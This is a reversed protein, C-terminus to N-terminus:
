GTTKSRMGLLNEQYAAIFNIALEEKSSGTISVNVEAKGSGTAAQQGPTKINVEEGSRGKILYNENNFGPPIIGSLGNAAKPVGARLLPPQTLPTDGGAGAFSGKAGAALNNISNLSSKSADKFANEMEDAAAISDEAITTMAIATGEELDIMDRSVSDIAHEMSDAMTKSADATAMEVGEISSQLEGQAASAKAAAADGVDGFDTLEEMNGGLQVFIKELIDAIKEMPDAMEDFVGSAEAQEIMKQTNADLELGYDSAAQKLQLLTPGILTLAQNQSFGADILDDFKSKASTGFADIQDQSLEGLAATAEMVANLGEVSDVLEQNGKVLERFQRLAEFTKDGEIGLAEQSAILKDFSDDMQTLAETISLGSKLMNAFTGLAITTQANFEEANKAPVALFKELDPITDRIPEFWQSTSKAIEEAAAAAEDRLEQFGDKGAEMADAISMDEALEELLATLKQIEEEGTIGFERLAETALEIGGTLGDKGGFLKGLTAVGATIAGLVNGSAVNQVVAGMGEFAVAMKDPVISLGSLVKLGGSIAGVYDKAIIDSLVDKMGDFAVALEQPIFSLRALSDLARNYSEQKEQMEKLKRAAGSAASEKEKLMATGEILATNFNELGPVLDIEEQINRNVVDQIAPMKSFIDETEELNEKRDEELKNVIGYVKKAEDLSVNLDKQLKEIKSLEPNQAKLIANASKLSVGYREMIKQAETLEQTNEKTIAAGDKQIGITKLYEANFSEFHKAVEEGYEGAKIDAWIANTEAFVQNSDGASESLLKLAEDLMSTDTSLGDISFRFENLRLSSEIVTDVLSKTSETIREENKVIQDALGIARLPGFAFTVAEGIGQFGAVLTDKNEKMWQTLNQLAPLLAEVFAKGFEVQLDQVTNQLIRSQNAFSGQTKIADGIALGSQQYAIKLSTVAKAQLLTMGQTNQLEKVMGKFEKTDQRVVIGLLKAPETEGVLLKTLAASARAAGGQINGFSATDAALKQTQLSLDFMAKKSFGFGALLDGTAALMREAELTSFLYNDTLEKVAAGTEDTMGSFVTQLKTHEEMADSALSISEKAFDWAKKAALIAVGTGIMTKIMSRMSLNTSQMQKSSARYIKTAEATSVNLKKQIAEIERIEPRTRRMIEQAGKLSTGYKKQIREAEKMEDNTASIGKELDIYAKATKDVQDIGVATSKLLIDIDPM